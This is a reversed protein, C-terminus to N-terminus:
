AVQRHQVFTWTEGNAHVTTEVTVWGDNQQVAYADGFSLDVRETTEYVGGADLRDVTETGSWVQENDTANGAYVQTEVTVDEVAVAQQNTVSVTVDRCTTGCKEVDDVTFTFPVDANADTDDMSASETANDDTDSAAADDTEAADGGAADSVAAGPSGNLMGSLFKSISGLIDGVFDPVAGPLDAPPGADQANTSQADAPLAAGAGVALTLLALVALADTRLTM